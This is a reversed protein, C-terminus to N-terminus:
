PRAAVSRTLTSPRIPERPDSKPSRPGPAQPRPRSTHQQHRQWDFLVPSFHFSSATTPWCYLKFLFSFYVLRVLLSKQSWSPTTRCFFLVYLTCNKYLDFWIHSCFTKIEIGWVPISVRFTHVACCPPAFQAKALCFLLQIILTVNM